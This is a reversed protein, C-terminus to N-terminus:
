ISLCCICSFAAITVLKCTYVDNSRNILPAPSAWWQVSLWDSGETSGCNRTKSTRAEKNWEKRRAQLRVLSRKPTPQCTLNLARVTRINNWNFHALLFRSQRAHHCAAFGYLLNWACSSYLCYPVLCWLPLNYTDGQWLYITHAEGHSLWLLLCQLLIKVNAIILLSFDCDSIAIIQSTFM